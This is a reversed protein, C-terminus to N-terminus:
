VLRQLYSQDTAISFGFIQRWRPSYFAFQVPTIIPFYFRNYFSFYYYYNCPNGSQQISFAGVFLSNLDKLSSFAGTIAPLSSPTETVSRVAGHQKLPANVKRYEVRLPM